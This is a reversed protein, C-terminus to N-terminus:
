PSILGRVAFHSIGRPVEEALWEVVHLFTVSADARNAVDMAFAVAHLAASSFDVPCPM